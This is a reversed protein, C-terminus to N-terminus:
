SCFNDWTCNTTKFSCTIQICVSGWYEVDCLRIRSM